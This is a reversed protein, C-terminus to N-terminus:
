DAQADANEELEPTSLVGANFRIMKTPKGAFRTLFTFKGKAHRLFGKNCFDNRLKDASDFGGRKELIETFSHPLFAVEGNKFKKGLCEYTSQTFENDFEPKEVEHVFAKDNGAVFSKLFEIARTTDDIQELTPLQYDILYRRDRILEADDFQPTVGLMVKFFEFAVLSASLTKLHTPEYNKTTPDSKAFHQYEKQIRKMHITAFQIWQKAFHGFNLESFIHLDTAFEDDFIKDHIEFQLLRKYAGRLDNQKLIPREGTTLRAGGFEFTERATGDRKNAQNGKGDAFNYVDNALTEEASKNQITELEDYFTPLDCFAAAVLQRNKNTAAFSRKLKLPNGFISATFKQLATKGGGSTGFLHAQPNPINLPRALIASLATGIYAHSIAGGNDAVEVFKKKWLEANGRTALEREFDFGARRIICDDNGVFAFNTFKDDTWGTQSYAKVEKLKPNLSIIDTLFLCIERPNLILAGNDNLNSITKADVLAKGDIETTQWKGRNLIAIEYTYKRKKPERFIKTPIIPTRAISLEVMVGDRRQVIKLMKHEEIRYNYPMLLNVPCSKILDQTWTKVKEGDDECEDVTMLAPKDNPTKKQAPPVLKEYWEKWVAKADYGYSKAIDAITAITWSNGNFSQWQQECEGEKFREDPRSWQEWDACTNGNNKLAAGIHWWDDRSLSAVPIVELMKTARWIDFDTGFSVNEWFNDDAPNNTQTKEQVGSDPEQKTKQPKPNNKAIEDLIAQFVDDVTQGHTIPANPECQYVDGTFLCYRGGTKYFIELFATKDTNFYIRGNKGSSIKEFKGETPKAIIHLGHKSASLECYSKLQNHIRYFFQEADATVFEGNDTLVHDFDLFLYDDGKGHGATDFGALGEVANFYKQTRPASWGKQKPKKDHKVPFFRPQTRIEEPLNALVQIKATTM